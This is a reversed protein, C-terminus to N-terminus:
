RAGRDVEQYWTLEAQKLTRALIIIADFRVTVRPKGRLWVYAAKRMRNFKAPDIADAAGYSDDRRTKVEVFALTNTNPIAAIIDIEGAVNRVNREIITYGHRQLFRAAAEEGRRGLEHADLQLADNHPDPQPQWTDTHRNHTSLIPAPM